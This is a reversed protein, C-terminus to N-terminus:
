LEMKYVTEEPKFGIKKLYRGMGPRKSHIRFAKFGQKKAGAKFHNIVGLANQGVGAVFVFDCPNGYFDLEARTITYGFNAIQWLECVGNKVQNKIFDFDDYLIPKLILGISDDWKIKKPKICDM